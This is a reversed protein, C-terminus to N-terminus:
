SSENSEALKELAYLHTMHLLRYQVAPEGVDAVVLSKEVLEMLSAVVEAPTLGPGATAGVASDLSFAGDLSALRRLLIQEPATLLEHSWDLAARLTGHRELQGKGSRVALRLQTDIHSLLDRLGLPKLRTAALEIALPIGDLRRCLESLVSADSDALRFSAVTATAREVFLACAPALELPGLRHVWEGQARLTERSTALVHVGPAGMLVQEAVFTAEDIVRECGDFVLLMQRDALWALATAMVDPGSTPLGLAAALALAVGGQESVSALDLLRGAGGCAPVATRAVALAVMTKGVGAPGVVTVFRRQRLKEDLTQVVAARGLMRGAPVAFTDPVLWDDEAPPRPLQREAAEAIREIPAVFTYGRGPTTAIYRAPGPGDGLAKRLSAVHVRLNNEEVVTDPWVRALLEDKTVMEGARETLVVLIDLARSSVELPRGESMLMQQRPLLEFRGFRM